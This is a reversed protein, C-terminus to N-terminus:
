TSGADKMRAFGDHRNLLMRSVGGNPQSPMERASIRVTTPWKAENSDIVQFSM